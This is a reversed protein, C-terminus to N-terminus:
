TLIWLFTVQVCSWGTRSIKNLLRVINRVLPNFPDNKLKHKFTFTCCRSIEFLIGTHHSLKKYSKYEVSTHTINEAICISFLLICFKIEQLSNHTQRFTLKIAKLLLQLICRLGHSWCCTYSKSEAQFLFQITISGNLQCSYICTSCDFNLVVNPTLTKNCAVSIYFCICLRNIYIYIYISLYSIYRNNNVKAWSWCERFYKLYHSVDTRHRSVYTQRLFMIIWISVLGHYSSGINATCIQYVTFCNTM